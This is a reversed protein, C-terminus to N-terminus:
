AHKKGIYVCFQSPERRRQLRAIWPRMAWKLGHWPTHKQWRIDLATELANLREDTLYELSHISDSATGFRKRFFAQREEVMTQGSKDRSYWPTDCIIVIGTPKLCRLAEYLTATYDEAYHFSANFVVADFQGDHFPLHTLEAQFRPLPQMLEREYHTAAGLGDQDNVLLDVATPRYGAMAMRYSMWCNGAGLDLVSSCEPETQLVQKLLYDFSRARITWQAHNSGTTDRYPLNLYYDKSRSGRGEVARIHEYDAIFRAYHEVREPPL